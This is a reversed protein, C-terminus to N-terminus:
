AEDCQKIILCVDIDRATSDALQEFLPSRKSFHAIHMRGPQPHGARLGKVRLHPGRCSIFSVCTPTCMSEGPIISV